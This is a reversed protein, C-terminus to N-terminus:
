VWKKQKAKAKCAQVTREMKRAISKWTFKEAELLDSFQKLEKKTWKKCRRGNTKRKHKKRTKMVSEFEVKLANKSRHKRMGKVFTIMEKETGEAEVKGNEYLTAKM